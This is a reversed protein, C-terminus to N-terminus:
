VKLKKYKKILIKKNQAQFSFYLWIFKWFYGGVRNQIYFKTFYLPNLFFHLQLAYFSFSYIYKYIYIHPQSINLLSVYVTLFKMRFLCKCMQNYSFKFITFPFINCSHIRFSIKRYDYMLHQEFNLYIDCYTANHLVTNSKFSKCKNLFIILTKPLVRASFHCFNHIESYAPM